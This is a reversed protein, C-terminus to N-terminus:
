FIREAILACSKLRGKRQATRMKRITGLFSFLEKLENFSANPILKLVAPDKIVPIADDWTKITQDTIDEAFIIRYGNQIFWRLYSGLSTLSALLMGDSVPQIYPDDQPNLIDEDPMWDFIVFKGRKELFGTAKKLFNEPHPFHSMAAVVWIVEFSQPFDMKEADMLLFQSSVKQEEAMRRAIGLQVPSITIGLTVAELNKAMWISSGGVGCGVDLIRAGKKIKAKEVLLNVLNDQAAKKSETGTIYYGDHIHEGYVSLYYPSSMDYFERIKEKMLTVSLTGKDGVKFLDGTEM